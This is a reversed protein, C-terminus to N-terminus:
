IQRLGGGAGLRAVGGAIAAQYVEVAATPVRALSGDFQMELSYLGMPALFAELPLVDLSQWGFATMHRAVQAPDLMPPGLRAIFEEIPRAGARYAWDILDFMPFWTYGVLPHGAARLRAVVEAEARVPPPLRPRLPSPPSM